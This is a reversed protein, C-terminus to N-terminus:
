VTRMTAVPATRTAAPEISVAWRGGDGGAGAAKETTSALMPWIRSAM